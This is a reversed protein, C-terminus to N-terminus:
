AICEALFREAEEMWEGGEDALLTRRGLRAAPELNKEQDDVFLVNRGGGFHAETLRYIAPEPKCCGVQNSITVSRVFPEITGLVPALWERCHNSLLHLEASRSWRELRGVAPLPRMAAELRQRAWAPDIGSCHVKLWEWFKQEPLQGTWLERRIERRFRERLKLGDGGAFPALEEWFVPFFNGVLVGAIDLVLQPKAAM